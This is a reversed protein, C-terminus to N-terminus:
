LSGALTSLIMMTLVHIHVQAAKDASLFVPKVAQLWAAHGARATAIDLATVAKLLRQLNLTSAKVQVSVV